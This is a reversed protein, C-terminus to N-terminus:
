AISVGRINRIWTILHRTKNYGIIVMIFYFLNKISFPNVRFAKIYLNKINVSGHEESYIKEFQRLIKDKKDVGGILNFKKHYYVSSSHTIKNNIKNKDFKFGINGLGVILTKIM